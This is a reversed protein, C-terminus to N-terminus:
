PTHSTAASGLQIVNAPQVPAVAFWAEGDAKTMLEKYNKHVIAPSNGAQAATLGEDSFAAFHASIFSHRLGNRRNPIKLEDRLEGFM